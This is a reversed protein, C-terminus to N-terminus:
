IGDDQVLHKVAGTADVLKGDTRMISRFTVLDSSFAFHDSREFRMSGVDRIYYGSFDGFLISVANAAPVAMYHDTVVPRGLIRDPVGNRLSPEWLYQGELDKLKRLIALTSDNMMWYANRRYPGIVSFYLDIVEDTTVTDVADATKGLTSDGVIGTPRSSGSGTIYHEGTAEGLARGADRAIFDLLNVGTDAILESSLQILQGYKWANFTVQNFTPDSEAVPSGESVLAAAGQGTVKPVLMPEGSTTTMVTVNTQRIASRETLYEYLRGVFTEPVTHGGATATAVTLDRKARDIDSQNFDVQVARREGRGLARFQDSLTERQEDEQPNPAPDNAADRDRQEAQEQRSIRNTLASIEGDIRDYTEAETAELDRNATEATDLLTRAEGILRAREQKLQIISPM